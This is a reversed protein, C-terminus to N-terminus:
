SLRNQVGTSDLVDDEGGGHERAVERLVARVPPPHSHLLELGEEGPLLADRLAQVRHGGDHPLEQDVGAAVGLHGVEVHGLEHVPQERSPVGERRRGM